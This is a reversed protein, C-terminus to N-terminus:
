ASSYVLQDVVMVEFQQLLVDTGDQTGVNYTIM